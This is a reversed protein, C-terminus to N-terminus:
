SQFEYTSNSKNKFFTGVAGRSVVISFRYALSLFGTVLVMWFFTEQESCDASNSKDSSPDGISHIIKQCIDSPESESSELESSESESSSISHSRSESTFNNMHTNRMSNWSSYDPIVQFYACTLDSERGYKEHIKLGM